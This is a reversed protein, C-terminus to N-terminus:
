AQVVFPPLQELHKNYSDFVESIKMNGARGGPALSSECLWIGLIMCLDRLNIMPFGSSTNILIYDRSQGFMRRFDMFKRRERRREENMFFNYDFAYSALTNINRGANGMLRRGENEDLAYIFLSSLCQGDPPRSRM